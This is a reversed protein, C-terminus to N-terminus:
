KVNPQLADIFESRAEEIAELIQRKFIERSFSEELMLLLKEVTVGITVGGIVGGVAAGIASGAGPIVSGIAAGSAAGAAAGSLASVAKGATVKLLAQAGLKIAGKGVVKATIKGAIAGTVAGAAGAGGSILLRKELDVIVSHSPPEKLAELPSHQAIKVQATTPQVRNEALILDISDLYKARLEQNQQLANDISQQVPGFVNEQMLYSELKEIMQKELAGTALASIRAYEGPLSYYWDLYDDVNAAMRQFGIDSANILESITTDIEGAIDLYAQQTQAITGPKYYENEVMEVTDIAINQSKRLHQIVNPSANMWGELYVTAPIYIFLAFFTVLASAIALSQPPIRTPQDTDRVPGLIRRYERIPLMFSSFALAVHYFLMLSGIFVFLLYLADNLTHLNSLAYSKFGELIGLLRTTELVLISNSAGDIKENMQIAQALSMYHHDERIFKMLFIYFVSMVLATVWRAWVLGKHAAMYTKYEQTTIPTFIAHIIAFVPITM